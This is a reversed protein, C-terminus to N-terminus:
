RANRYVDKILDNIDDRYMLRIKKKKLALSRFSITKPIELGLKNMENKDEILKNIDDELLIDKDIIKFIEDTVKYVFNSDSSVIIITKGERKLKKLWKILLFFTKEDLGITPEDLLILKCDSLIMTIILIKKLEGSSLEFYSKKLIEEKLHFEKLLENLNSNAKGCLNNIDKLINSQIFQTEYDQLMYFIDKRYNNIEIKLMKNTLHRKGVKISGSDYNELKYLLNLLSTKGTSNRGVITSINKSKFTCSVENFITKYKLNEIKIEM